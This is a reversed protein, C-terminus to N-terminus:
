CVGDCHVGGRQCVREIETLAEEMERQLEEAARRGRELRAHNTHNREDKIAFYRNLIDTALVDEGEPPVIVGERLKEVGRPLVLAFGLQNMEEEGLNNRLFNLLRNGLDRDEHALLAAWVENAEKAAPESAEGQQQLVKHKLYFPCIANLVAQGEPRERFRDGPESHLLGLLGLLLAELKEGDKLRFAADSPFPKAIFADIEEETVGKKLKDLFDKYQSCWAKQCEKMEEAESGKLKRYENLLYFGQHRKMSDKKWKKQVEKEYRPAVKLFKANYLMEPVRETFFTMAQQLLGHRLCWRIIAIENDPNTLLERYDERIRVLMQGMLSDNQETAGESGKKSAADSFAEIAEHLDVIAQRLEGSHCLALEQAFREM